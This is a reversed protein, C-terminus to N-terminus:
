RKGYSTFCHCWCVKPAGDQRYVPYAPNPYTKEGDCQPAHGKLYPYGDNESRMFPLEKLSPRNAHEAYNNEIPWSREDDDMLESIIIAKIVDRQGAPLSNIVSSVDQPNYDLIDNGNLKIGSKPNLKM